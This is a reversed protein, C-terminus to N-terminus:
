DSKKITRYVWSAITYPIKGANAASLLVRQAPSHFPARRELHCYKQIKTFVEQRKTEYDKSHIGDTKLLFGLCASLLIRAAFVSYDTHTEKIYHYVEEASIVQDFSQEGSHSTTISGERKCYAYLQNYNVVIQNCRDFVRMTVPYDENTRGEPFRIGDFLRRHYLKSWASFWKNEQLSIRILEHNPRCESKETIPPFCSRSGNFMLPQCFALMTGHSVIDAYLRSYMEPHIFDDSDVFGIYEGRCANLGTNRAASLGGNKRHLVIIRHDEKALRDCIEGCRDPSGDDVLIIELNQYTQSRLSEVCRELWPEVKYVPVIVSLLPEPILNEAITKPAMQLFFIDM